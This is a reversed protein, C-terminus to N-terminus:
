KSKSARKELVKQFIIDYAQDIKQQYEKKQEDTATNWLSIYKIKLKEKKM